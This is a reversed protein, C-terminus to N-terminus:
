NELLECPMYHAIPTKHICELCADSESMAPFTAL